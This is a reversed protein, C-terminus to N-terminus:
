TKKVLNAEPTESPMEVRLRSHTTHPKLCHQVPVHGLRGVRVVRRGMPNWLKAPYWVRRQEWGAGTLNVSLISTVIAGMARMRSPRSSKLSYGMSSSFRRCFLFARCAKLSSALLEPQESVSEVSSALM